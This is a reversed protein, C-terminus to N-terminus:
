GNVVAVHADLQASFQRKGDLPQRQKRSLQRRRLRKAKLRILRSCHNLREARGSRRYIISNGHISLPECDNILLILKSCLIGAMGGYRGRNIAIGPSQFYVWYYACPIRVIWWAEMSIRTSNIVSKWNFRVVGIIQWASFLFFM